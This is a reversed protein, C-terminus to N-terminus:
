NKWFEWFRKKPRASTHEVDALSNPQPRTGDAVGVIVHRLYHNIKDSPDLKLAAVISKSADAVRGALLYALALNGILDVARPDIAVAHEVVSVAEDFKGLELCVGALERSVEDANKELEYARRFSRYALEHNGLAMQGKGHHWLASGWDPAEAIVKELLEIAGAVEKAKKGGLPKEGATVFHKGITRVATKFMAEYPISSRGIYVEEGTDKNLYVELSDELRLFELQDMSTSFSLGSGKKPDWGERAIVTRPNAGAKWGIVAKEWQATVLWECYPDVSRDFEQVLVVDSNPGQSVNLGAKELSELFKRADSEAMFSCRWIDDDALSTGDPTEILGDELLHDIRAKQAVVCYGEIPLAM